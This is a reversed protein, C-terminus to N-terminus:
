AHVPTQFDHATSTRTSGILQALESLANLNHGEVFDDVYPLAAAMGAALPAYDPSAKLPNVWIVRHAVLSLRQMQERMEEPDGRDWGDSLIVVVAGRALGRCGWQDNFTKIGDGLRTGGSWDVVAASASKLAIDPDRTTLERTIRTLRTGLAFAEVRNHGAVSSHAFRLLARAYREMSGSIDLLLVLRRPRPSQSRRHLQIPEGGAKLASRVTRRMDLRGNKSSCPVARRTKRTPTSMRIQSMLRHTEALEAPTCNAFDKHWLTEKHSYRLTISIQEPATNGVTNDTSNNGAPDSPDPDHASVPVRANIGDVSDTVPHGLWYSNFTHLYTNADAIRHVLLARGAWYLQQSDNVNLAAIAQTYLKASSLAIDLGNNRLANVFGVAVQTTAAPTFTPSANTITANPPSM